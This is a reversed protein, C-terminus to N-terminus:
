KHVSSRRDRDPMRGGQHFWTHCDDCLVILDQSAEHGLNRYTNHHVQLRAKSSCLQCRYNANQLAQLRVTQWHSSRLYERYVMRRSTNAAANPLPKPSIMMEHNTTNPALRQYMWRPVPESSTIEVVNRDRQKCRRDYIEACAQGFVFISALLALGYLIGNDGALKGFFGVIMFVALAIVSAGIFAIAGNVLKAM